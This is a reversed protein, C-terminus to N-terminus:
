SPLLEVANHDEIATWARKALCHLLDLARTNETDVAAGAILPYVLCYLSVVRYAEQLQERDCNTVGRQVLQDHYLALLDAEHARRDEVSLSQSLFYGLDFIGPGRVVIQWDLITLAPTGVGDGFLLNDLRFDGHALTHPHRDLRQLLLRTADGFTSSLAPFWEPVTEGLHQMSLPANRHYMFPVGETYLPDGLRHLWGLQALRPQEWWFAHLAALQRVAQAAQDPACGAIQDALRAASLDELLLVFDGTESNAGVFYCHPKRVPTEAALERYFNVENEYLHYAQAIQRAQEHPSAFKAVLSAPASTPGQYRLSVQVLETLIGVGAGIRRTEFTAVSTGDLVGTGLAETLWTTTLDSSTRPISVM